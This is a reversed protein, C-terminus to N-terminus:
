ILTWGVGAASEPNGLPLTPSELRNNPKALLKVLDAHFHLFNLRSPPPTWLTVVYIRWQVGSITNM